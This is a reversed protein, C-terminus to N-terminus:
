RRPADGAQWFTATVSGSGGAGGTMLVQAWIPCFQFNTQISTSANVAATDNTPIWTVAAPTVPNTLSNPDDMTSLLTYVAAGSVNIQITVAAFAWQDFNVWPSAATGNTGLTVLSNWNGGSLPPVASIVTAYDLVSAVAGGAGSPVTLTEGIPLGSWNTGALSLTRTVPEAGFTLLIRRPKDLIGVSNVAFSGNLTLPLGGQVSQSPAIGAANPTALPGVTVTVPRM